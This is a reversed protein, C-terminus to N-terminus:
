DPRCFPHPPNPTAWPVSWFGVPCAWTSVVLTLGSDLDGLIFKGQRGLVEVTRGALRDVVDNPNENRRGTRPHRLEVELLRRGLLHPELFRRTTEVEPLEPM